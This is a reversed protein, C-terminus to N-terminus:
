VMLYLLIPINYTMTRHPSADKNATYRMVIEQNFYIFDSWQKAQCSVTTRFDTLSASELIPNLHIKDLDRHARRFNYRVLLFGNEYRCKYLKLVKNFCELAAKEYKKQMCLAM